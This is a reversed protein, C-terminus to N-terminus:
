QNALLHLRDCDPEVLAPGVTYREASSKLQPVFKTRSISYEQCFIDERPFPGTGPRGSGPFADWLTLPGDWVSKPSVRAEPATQFPAAVSLPGTTCDAPVCCVPLDFDPSISTSKSRGAKSVARQCCKQAGSHLRATEPLGPPGPSGLFHRPRDGSM